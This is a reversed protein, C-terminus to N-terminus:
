FGLIMNSLNIIDMVDIIGSGDLDCFFLQADTPQGGFLIVDALALLDFIDAVLDMNYDGMVGKPFGSISFDDVTFGDGEVYNDSTQIFRFGTIVADDNLQYLSIAEQVWLNQYGDYGQEGSPQAPQGSGPETFVGKLTVWDAGNVNAQFRVFDWNWEIDWKASFNVIPNSM